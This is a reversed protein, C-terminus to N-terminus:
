AARQLRPRAAPVWGLVTEGALWMAAVLSLLAVMLALDLPPLARVWSSAAAAVPSARHLSGAAHAPATRVVEGPSVFRYGLAKVGRVAARLAEPSEYWPFSFSAFGDRVALNREAAGVVREAGRGSAAAVAGLNEPIIFDGRLDVAEYPFFQSTWGRAYDARGGAVEGAFYLSREYRAAHGGRAAEYAEASAANFPTTFLFPRDLGSLRWTRASADFRRRWFAADNRPLPGRLAFAGNELDAAFYEFDGGSVRAHPNPRADSQHTHGNAVLTAGRSVAHRLAAVIQPRQGLGLAIPRGNSFRGGPDRYTDYVAISFPVGEGALLDALYRIRRPNSDPGVHDIRVMARHRAPAAPALAEFLLDAFVLYRDDEHAYAFPTEALYFLNGSRVAWPVEEASRGIAAALVAARAPDAIRPVAPVAEARLDRPFERDKYRVAVWDAPAAPDPTWGQAAAFAPDAFLTEIGAGIWFVPRRAARVDAALSAPAGGEAPLLIAADYAALDGRRYQAFTRFRARGFRGALNGALAAELERTGGRADYLVLVRRGEGAGGAPVPAGARLEHQAWAAFLLWLALGAFACRLVWHHM